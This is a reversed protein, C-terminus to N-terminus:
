LDGLNLTRAEEIARQSRTAAVYRDLMRRSSWGMAAVAGGESGGAALWRTAATHRFRHPNLGEIGAQEARVKVMAWLAAYSFGRGRTGLWLMPGDALKHTRRMRLYRDVASCGQPGLGAVRGKGTKSKRVIVMGAMLDVDSVWLAAAEGPRLGTEALLRIIAADRKDEFTKGACAKLLRRLEDETLPNVLKEPQKPPRMGALPDTDTEGEQYLWKSFRRVASQRAAVTAPEAGGDMLAATWTRVQGRDLPTEVGERDCWSLYAEVGQRYLTLTNDARGDARLALLWSLLLERLDM